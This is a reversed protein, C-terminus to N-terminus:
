KKTFHYTTTTNKMEGHFDRYLEVKLLGEKVLEIQFYRTEAKFKYIAEYRGTKSNRVLDEWDWDCDVLTCPNLIRIRSAIDDIIVKDIDIDFYKLKADVLVWEGEILKITDLKPSCAGETWSTIGNAFAVSKNSYEEGDCGCVPRYDATVTQEAPAYEQCDVSIAAIVLRLEVTTDMAMIDVLIADDYGFLDSQRFTAVEPTEGSEPHRRILRWTDFDPNEDLAIIAMDPDASIPIMRAEVKWITPDPLEDYPFVLTARDFEDITMTTDLILYTASRATATQSNKRFADKVNVAIGNELSTQEHTPLAKNTTALEELNEKQCATMLLAFLIFPLFPTKVLSFKFNKM